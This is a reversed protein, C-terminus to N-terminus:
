PQARKQRWTTANEYASAVRIITAEDGRNGAIQWNLPLGKSFGNCQMMVPHGSLNFPTLMTEITFATMEPEVGLRPPMHLTGYTVLADYGRMLADLSTAVSCRLRQAALYDVARVLSGALLKDRLAFGMQDAQEKLEREHIAATEAPGIMRSAAFCEAAPIPLKVRTLQAGLQELVKLAQEFGKRLPPDAAPFGPGPDDVVAIRLGAIPQGVSRRLSPQTTQTRLPHDFLADLIIACDEVTWALPGPIDLSWCNPLIGQKSLRGPTAIMGIAGCAAAPLRVSGTTDSGLAFLTTGAAVSAGAGTSSGGTFRNIDWPNRAPPFPLDFYEGGNGTGFEWTSLKGILVAGAAKLQQVLAADQLPVHNLRLRSGATAPMGAVDYNDKVAFPLGHLPGKWHGAAIEKGAEAAAFRAQAAAVHIYSHIRDDVAAIRELYAELLDSPSLTQNAIRASAEALTIAWLPASRKNHKSNM